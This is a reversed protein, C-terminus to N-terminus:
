LLAPAILRRVPAFSTRHIACPGLRELAQLHEPTSYGKHRAFGYGPHVADWARMLRDRETKALISAASIAPELADGGVIARGPCPLDAPLQNGDILALVPGPALAALARSMGALTARLINIRDIEATDVVCVAYGLARERILLALAERVPEALAKSDDLGDIPRDPDLIVAAVVVPGALPGRGAEDVGATLLLANRNM